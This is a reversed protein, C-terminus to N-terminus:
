FFVSSGIFGIFLGAIIFTSAGGKAVTACGHPKHRTNNEDNQIKTKKRKGHGRTLNLKDTEKSM